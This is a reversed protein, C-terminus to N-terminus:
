LYIEALDHPLIIVTGRNDAAKIGMKGCDAKDTKRIFMYLKCKAGGPKGTGRHREPRKAGEPTRVTWGPKLKCQWSLREM